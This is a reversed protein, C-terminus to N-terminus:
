LSSDTKSCPAPVQWPFVKLCIQGDALPQTATELSVKDLLFQGHQECLNSFSTLFCPFSAPTCGAKIDRDVKRFIEKLTVSSSM